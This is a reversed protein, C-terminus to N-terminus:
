TTILSQRIRPLQSLPLSLPAQEPLLGSVFRLTEHGLRGLLRMKKSLRSRDHRYGARRRAPEMNLIIERKPAFRSIWRQLDLV